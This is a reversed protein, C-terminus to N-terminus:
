NIGKNNLDDIVKQTILEGEKYNLTDFAFNQGIAKNFSFYENIYDRALGLKFDFINTYRLCNEVKMYITSVFMDKIQDTMIRM